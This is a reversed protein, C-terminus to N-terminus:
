RREPQSSVPAPLDQWVPTFFPAPALIRSEQRVLLPLMKAVYAKFGPDAM